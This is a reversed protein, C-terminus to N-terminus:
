KRPKFLGTRSLAEMKGTFIVPLSGIEAVERIPNGMEDYVPVGKVAQYRLSKGPTRSWVFITVSGDKIVGFARADPSTVPIEGLAEAGDTFRIVTAYAAMGARPVLDTEMECFQGIVDGSMLYPYFRKVQDLQAVTHKIMYEVARTRTALNDPHRLSGWDGPSYETNWIEIKPYGLQDLEQRLEAFHVRNEDLREDVTRGYSYPHVHVADVLTLVGEKHLRELAAVSSWGIIKFRPNLQKLETAAAKFVTIFEDQTGRWFIPVHPENFIEWDTIQPYATAVKRVYTRWADPSDPMVTGYAGGSLLKPRQTGAWAPTTDIIGMLQAQGSALLTQAPASFRWEGPSPEVVKWQTITPPWHGRGRVAGIRQSMEFIDPNTLAYHNGFRSQAPDIAPPPSFYAFVTSAETTEGGKVILRHLGFKDPRITQRLSAAGAPIVIQGTQFVTGRWDELRWTLPESIAPKGEARNITFIMEPPHVTTYVRGAGQLQVAVERPGAPERDPATSGEHLSAQDIWAKGNGTKKISVYYFRERLTSNGTIECRTWKPSVEFTKAFRLGDGSLLSVTLKAAAEGKAWLTIVHQCNETLVLPPSIIEAQRGGLKLSTRGHRAQTLDQGVYDRSAHAVIWDSSSLPVEFDGNAVLNETRTPLAVPLNIEELVVDDIWLRGIDEFSFAVTTKPQDDSAVFSKEMRNWEPLVTTSTFFFQKWGPDVMRVGVNLTSIGEGRYAFSLRYAQGKRIAFPACQWQSIAVKRAVVRLAARGSYSAGSNHDFGLDSDAKSWAWNTTWGGRDEADGNLVLNGNGAAAEAAPLALGLLWAAIVIPKIYFFM